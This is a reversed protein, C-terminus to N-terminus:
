FSLIFLVATIGSYMNWLTKGDLEAKITPQRTEDKDIRQSKRQINNYFVKKTM